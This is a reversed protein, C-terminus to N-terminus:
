NPMTKDTVFVGGTDLINDINHIINQFNEDARKIERAFILSM